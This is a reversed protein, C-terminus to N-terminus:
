EIVIEHEVVRSYENEEDQCIFRWNFTGAKTQFSPDSFGTGYVPIRFSFVGDGKISDGSTINPLYRITDSGDDYLYIFNGNNMLSDGQVHFSTFGVWKLTELGDADNARAKILHLSVTADSPRTITDPAAVSDIVPIINGILLSDILSIKESGYFAHYEMFVVGTDKVLPNILNQVDNMIKRSYVQDNSIIDGKLGNDNLLIVDPTNETTVSFWNVTVSDLEDGGYGVPANVSFYLKNTNQHFTFSPNHLIIVETENKSESCSINLLLLCLIFYIIKILKIHTLIINGIKIKGITSIIM